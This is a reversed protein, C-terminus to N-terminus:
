DQRHPERREQDVPGAGDAQQGEPRRQEPPDFGLHRRGPRSAPGPRGGVLVVVVQDDDAVADVSLVHGPGGSFGVNRVHDNFEVGFGDPLGPRLAFRNEVAVGGAVNNEAVHLHV